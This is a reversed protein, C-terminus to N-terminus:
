QVGGWVGEVPPDFVLSTVFGYRGVSQRRPKPPCHSHRCVHCADGSGCSSGERTPEERPGKGKWTWPNTKSNATTLRGVIRSRSGESRKRQSGRQHYQTKRYPGPNICHDIDWSYKMMIMHKSDNHGSFSGSRLLSRWPRPRCAWYESNWLPTLLGPLHQKVELVTGRLIWISRFLSFDPFIQPTTLLDAQFHKRILLM